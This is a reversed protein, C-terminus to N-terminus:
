PKGVNGLCGRMLVGRKEWLIEKYTSHNRLHQISELMDGLMEANIFRAKGYYNKAHETAKLMDGFMEANFYRTKDM